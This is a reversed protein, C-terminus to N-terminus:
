IFDWLLGGSVGETLRRGPFIGMAPDDASGDMPEEEHNM